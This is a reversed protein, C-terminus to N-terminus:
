IKLRHLEMHMLSSNQSRSFLSAKFAKNVASIQLVAGNQVTNLYLILEQQILELAKYSQVPLALSCKLFGWLNICFM